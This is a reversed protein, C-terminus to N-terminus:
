ISVGEIDEIEQTSLDLSKDEMRYLRVFLIKLKLNMLNRTTMKVRYLM